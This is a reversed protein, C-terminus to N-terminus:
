RDLCGRITEVVRKQEEESMDYYLPLTISLRDAIYSRPYDFNELEYKNKYYGLTHVAHTGQRVSIGRSEIHAMLRNRERNLRHIEEPANDVPRYLCVFSQYAHHYKDPVAPPVIEPVNELLRYYRLAATRRGELIAAAKKMQNVGLAGQIDTMRYNYGLVDYEPLLSGGESLHRELDTKSAGHDRLKRIRDAMSANDTIVMGGEGTSLAKRPHFSFNGTLGETGAHRGFRYAGLSCASDEIVRLNYKLALRNIAGMDACLGFLAVPMIAKPRTLDDPNKNELYEEIKEPCINYTDLDIDIFVPKAGTYEVANASAIFTFSPLLVEDGPGIGAATLSLHLASTCSTTAIAHERGTFECVLREFEKVRPGQVVWGSKLVESVARIDDDDFAPRTIPIPAPNPEENVETKQKDLLATTM